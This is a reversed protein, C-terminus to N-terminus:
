SDSGGVGQYDGVGARKRDEEDRSRLAVATGLMALEALLAPRRPEPLAGSLHEIMARLRRDVQLSAEGFQRIESVALMLVMGAVRPTLQGSALQVVILTASLV